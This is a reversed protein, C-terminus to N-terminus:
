APVPSGSVGFLVAVVVLALVIAIAVGVVAKLTWTIPDTPLHAPDRDAMTSMAHLLEPCGQASLAFSVLDAALRGAIVNHM